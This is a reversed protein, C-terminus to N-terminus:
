QRQICVDDVALSVGEDYGDFALLALTVDCELVDSARKVVRLRVAEHLVHTGDVERSGTSIGSARYLERLDVVGERENFGRGQLKWKSEM